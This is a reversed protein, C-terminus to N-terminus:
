GGIRPFSMLSLQTSYNFIMLLLFGGLSFWAEHKSNWTPFYRLHLIAAFYCWICASQLHKPSWHIPTAWGLYAWYAGVVQSISYFIFGWIIFSTFHRDTDKGKLHFIAFWAGLIFCAQAMTDVSYYLAVFITEHKPDPPIIGKPFVLALLSFLCIPIIMSDIVTKNKEDKSFWGIGLGIFAMSWPLFYTGDFISNPLWTGLFLGRTLQFLTHSFFGIIFAASSTKLRNFFYFVLSLLYFGIAITFAYHFILTIM